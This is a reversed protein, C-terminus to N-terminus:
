DVDARNETEEDHDEHVAFTKQSCENEVRGFSFSVVGARSAIGRAVRGCRLLGLLDM